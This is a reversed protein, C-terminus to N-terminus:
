GKQLVAFDSGHLSASRTLTAFQGGSGFGAAEGNANYFLKGTSRIYTIVAASTQAETASNVTSFSVRNGLESFTKRALVIKDEGRKFDAITDIGDSKQFAKGSQFLFRDHGANGTLRDNGDGGSLTDNGSNGVLTDRGGNGTLTDANNSGTLSDRSQTGSIERYDTLKYSLKPSRNITLTEKSLDATISVKTEGSADVVGSQGSSPQKFLIFLSRNLLLSADTTGANATVLDPKGDGNLDGIALGNPSTGVTFSSSKSFGGKGDGTLVAVQSADRNATVIDLKGDGNLDKSAIASGVLNTTLATTTKFSGSGNGLFVLVNDTTNAQNVTAVDLKGDGDFDGVTLAVPLVGKLDFTKTEGFNGKGDGFLLTLTSSQGEVTALDLKGDGDFDGTAVAFPEKDQSRNSLTRNSFTGDGKGLLLSLNGAGSDANATALDLKGDGDFDAAILSNPKSGVKLTSATGFTGDGSGLLVSVTDSSLSATALDLKGDGNFDGTVSAIPSAGAAATKATGFSGKGNGLRVIVNDSLTADTLTFVLDLNGDKNFDAIAGSGAPNAIPLRLVSDLQFSPNFFDSVTQSARTSAHSHTM